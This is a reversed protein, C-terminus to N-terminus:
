RHVEISEYISPLNWSDNWFIETVGNDDRIIV